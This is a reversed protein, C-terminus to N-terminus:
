RWPSIWLHKPLSVPSIAPEFDSNCTLYGRFVGHWYLIPPRYSDRNWPSYPAVPSGYPGEPNWISMQSYPSGFEGRRNGISEPSDYDRDIVRWSPATM